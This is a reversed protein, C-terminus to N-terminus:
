GICDKAESAGDTTIDAGPGPGWSSFQHAFGDVRYVPGTENLSNTMWVGVETVGPGTFEAAVMYANKFDKSKVAASRGTLHVGTLGASIRAPDSSGIMGRILARMM